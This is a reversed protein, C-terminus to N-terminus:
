PNAKLSQALNLTLTLTLTLALALTLALTRGVETKTRAVTLTAGGGGEGVVEAFLPQCADAVSDRLALALSPLPTQTARPSRMVHALCAAYQELSIAGM